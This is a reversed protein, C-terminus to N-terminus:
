TLLVPADDLTKILLELSQRRHGVSAKEAVSNAARKGDLGSCDPATDASHDTAVGAESACRFAVPARQGEIRLDAATLAHISAARRFGESAQRWSRGDSRPQLRACL